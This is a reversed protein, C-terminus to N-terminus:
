LVKQLLKIKVTYPLHFNTTNVGRKFFIAYYLNTYDMIHRCSYQYNTVSTEFYIDTKIVVSQFRVDHLFFFIQM